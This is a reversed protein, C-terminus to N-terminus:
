MKDSFAVGKRLVTLFIMMILCVSPIFNNFNVMISLDESATVAKTGFFHWLIYMVGASVAACVARVAIFPRLSLRGGVIVYIQMVVCLGGFSGAGAVLPLLRYPSGRLTSLASIEIFSMLAKRTNEAAPLQEILPSILTIVAQFFLIMTCINFLGKGASAVSEPLMEASFRQKSGNQELKVPFVRFLVASVLLNAAACSCFIMLGTKQSGFVALGVASCFFAPGGGYCTCLLREASQKDIRGEDYMRSIMSAGVPYGACNSILLLAGCSDPLGLLKTLPRLLKSVPIYAGSRVMLDSVAMFAFLSPVMVNICRLVAQRMDEALRASFVILLVAAATLTLSVATNKQTDTM